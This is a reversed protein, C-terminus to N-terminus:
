LRGGTAIEKLRAQTLLVANRRTRKMTGVISARPKGWLAGHGADSSPMQESM